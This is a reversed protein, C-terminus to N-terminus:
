QGNPNSARVLDIISRFHSAERAGEIAEGYGWVAHLYRLGAARAALFDVDMDGVFLSEELSADHLSAALILGDPAPKGRGPALLEPSVVRWDVDPLLSILLSKARELPKSTVISLATGMENLESVGKAVDPYLYVLEEKEGTLQFYRARLTQRM